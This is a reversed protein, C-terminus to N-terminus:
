VEISKQATNEILYKVVERMNPKESNELAYDLATKGFADRNNIHSYPNKYKKHFEVINYIEEINWNIVALHLNTQQKPKNIEKEELVYIVKVDKGKLEEDQIRRLLKSQENLYKEKNLSSRLAIKAECPLPRPAIDAHKVIHNKVETKLISQKSENRVLSLEKQIENINPESIDKSHKSSDTDKLFNKIEEITDTKNDVTNCKNELDNVGLELLGDIVIEEDIFDPQYYSADSDSFTSAPSPVYGSEPSSINQDGFQGDTEYSQSFDFTVYSNLNENSLSNDKVSGFSLHLLTSHDFDSINYLNLQGRNQRNPLHRRTRLPARERLDSKEEDNVGSIERLDSKEVDNINSIEQLDSKEDNVDSIERLDPKEGDNVHLIVLDNLLNNIDDNIVENVNLETKINVNKGEKSILSDYTDCFSKVDKSSKESENCLEDSSYELVLSDINIEVSSLSHNENEKKLNSANHNDKMTCAAAEQKLAYTNDELKIVHFDDQTGTEHSEKKELSNLSEAIDSPISALNLKELEYALLISSDIDLDILDETKNESNEAMTYM